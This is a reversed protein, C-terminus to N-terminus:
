FMYPTLVVGIITNSSHNYSFGTPSSITRLHCVHEVCIKFVRQVYTTKARKFVVHQVHKSFM